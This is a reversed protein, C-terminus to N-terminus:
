CKEKLIRDNSMYDHPQAHALFRQGIMPNPLPKRIKKIVNLLSFFDSKCASSSSPRISFLIAVAFGTCLKLSGCDTRLLRTACNTITQLERMARKGALAKDIKERRQGAPVHCKKKHEFPISTKYIIIIIDSLYFGADPSRIPATGRLPLTLSAPSPFSTCATLSCIARVVMDTPGTFSTLSTLRGTWM